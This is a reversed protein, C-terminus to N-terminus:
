VCIMVVDFVFGLFILLIIVGIKMVVLMVVVIELIMLMYIIVCDGKEIGM